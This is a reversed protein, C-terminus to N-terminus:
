EGAIQSPRVVADRSSEDADADHAALVQSGRHLLGSNSGNSYAIHVLWIELFSGRQRFPLSVLRSFDAIEALDQSILADIYYADGSRIMPVGIHGYLRALCALIDIYLLGHAERNVFALHHNLCCSFVVPDHLCTGPLAGARM